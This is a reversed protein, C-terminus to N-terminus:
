RDLDRTLVYGVGPVPDVSWGLPGLPGRVERLVPRLDGQAAAELEARPV